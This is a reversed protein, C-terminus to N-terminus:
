RTPYRRLYSGLSSFNPAVCASATSCGSRPLRTPLARHFGTSSSAQTLSRCLTRQIEGSPRSLRSRSGVPGRAEPSAPSGRRAQGMRELETKERCRGASGRRPPAGPPAQWKEEGQSARDMGMEPSDGSVSSGVGRCGLHDARRSRDPGGRYEVVRSLM